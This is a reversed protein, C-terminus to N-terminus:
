LRVLEFSTIGQTPKSNGAKDTKPMEKTSTNQIAYLEGNKVYKKVDAPLRPDVYKFGISDIKIVATKVKKNIVSEVARFLKAWRTKTHALKMTLFENSSEWRHSSYGDNFVEKTKKTM